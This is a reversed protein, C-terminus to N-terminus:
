ALLTTSFPYPCLVRCGDSTVVVQDGLKVGDRGGPEGAYLEVVLAMHEEIVTDANSQRDQPHCVSPNEEELGVGHVMCEYRQALYREPMPPALTALDGCTVGPRILEEMGRLWEHSARYADRQATSPPTDGALFTRSVCFFMGEIGITDTDVYVLDGSELRRDTVEARWPNTNPGSCVTNTALYEGGGRIMVGALVALLDRESVGPAIARDLAALMEMVLAANEDLLRLEQPTKVRRADQTVPASDGVGIGRRALALYAPAGLRDVAVTSGEAGVERVAELLEDAWADAEKEPDDFFEWAHMRRVDPARLASRHMSNGHEFLIPTGEAPVLACRVFTSMAYVPMASAGTAYRINPENFFLCVEVDHAHMAAQLRALRELRLAEVDYRENTAVDSM